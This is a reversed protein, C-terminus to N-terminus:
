RFIAEIGNFWKDQAIVGGLVKVVKLGFQIREESEKANMAAAELVSASLISHHDGGGGGSSVGNYGDGGDAVHSGAGARGANGRRAPALAAFSRLLNQSLTLQSQLSLLTQHVVTVALPSAPSLTSFARAARSGPRPPERSLLADLVATFTPGSEVTSAAAAAAAAATSDAVGLGLDAFTSTSSSSTSSVSSAPASAFTSVPAGFRMRQREIAEWWLQASEATWTADSSPLPLHALKPDNHLLLREHANSRGLEVDLLYCLFAVRIYTERTVWERWTRDLDPPPFPFDLSLTAVPPPTLDLFTRDSFAGLLQYLLLTQTAAMREGYHMLTGELNQAAFERKIRSMEDFFSTSSKFLGAGAVSLAFALTPEVTNMVLTPSHIIPLVPLITKCAQFAYKSLKPLPPIEWPFLYAICFRQNAMWFRSGTNRDLGFLHDLGPYMSPEKYLRMKGDFGGDGLEQDVEAWDEDTGPLVEIAFNRPRVSRLALVESAKLAFDPPRPLPLLSQEATLDSHFAPPRQASSPLYIGPPADSLPFNDPQADLSGDIEDCLNGSIIGFPTTSSDPLRGASGPEQQQQVANCPDVEDGEMLPVLWPVEDSPDYLPPNDLSFLGASGQIPELSHADSSAGALATAIDTTESPSIAPPIPPGNSIWSDVTSGIIGQSDSGNPPSPGRRSRKAQPSRPSASTTGAVLVPPPTADPRDATEAGAHRPGPPSPDLRPSEEPHFLQRHRALLDPRSCETECDPCRLTTSGSDHKTRWHRRAYEARSFIQGCEPCAHDQRSPPGRRKLSAKEPQDAM